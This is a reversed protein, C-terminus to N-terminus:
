GVLQRRDLRRRTAPDVDHAVRVCPALTVHLYTGLEDTVSERPAVDGFAAGIPVPRRARARRVGVPEALPFGSPLASCGTLLLLAAAGLSSRLRARM